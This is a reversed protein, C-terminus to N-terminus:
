GPLDNNAQEATHPEAALGKRRCTDRLMADATHKEGESTRQLCEALATDGFICGHLRLLYKMCPAWTSGTSIRGCYSSGTRPGLVHSPTLGWKDQPGERRRGAPARLGQQDSGREGARPLRAVRVQAGM